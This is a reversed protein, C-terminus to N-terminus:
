GQLRKKLLRVASAPTTLVPLGLAQQVAPAARAMSFQALAITSCGAKALARASEVIAQEHAAIDGRHLAELAGAALACHLDTGDQFEAPITTLTSAFSAILGIRGGVDAAQQVMAENPKLVPIRSHARAVAELCPGFASCTFFIAEAGADVAYNALKMVRAYMVADLVGSVSALDASLSDDLVNMRLAEPWSRAMEENVPAISHTPSM